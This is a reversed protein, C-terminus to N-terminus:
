LFSLFASKAQSKTYQRLESEVVSSTHSACIFTSHELSKISITPIIDSSASDAALNSEKQMTTKTLTKNSRLSVMVLVVSIFAFM